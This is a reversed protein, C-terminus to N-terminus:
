QKYSTYDSYSCQIRIIALMLDFYTLYLIEQNFYSDIHLSVDDMGGGSGEMEVVVM